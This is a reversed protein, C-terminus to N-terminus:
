GEVAHDYLKAKHGDSTKVEGTYQVAIKLGARSKDFFDSLDKVEWLLIEEGPQVTVNEYEGEGTKRKARVSDKSVRVAAFRNNEGEGTRKVTGLLWDGKEPDWDPPKDSSSKAKKKLKEWINEQEPVKLKPIEESGSEMAKGEM